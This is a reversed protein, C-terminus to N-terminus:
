LSMLFEGVLGQAQEYTAGYGLRDIADFQRKLLQWFEFPEGTLNPSAM